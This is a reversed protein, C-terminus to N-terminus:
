LEHYIKWSSLNYVYIYQYKLDLPNYILYTTKNFGKDWSCEKWEKEQGDVWMWM